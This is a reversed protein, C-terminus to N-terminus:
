YVSLPELKVGDFWVKGRGYLVLGIRLTAGAPIKIAEFTHSFHNWDTTGKVEFLEGGKDDRIGEITKNNLDFYYGSVYAAPAGIVKETKIYCSLTYTQYPTIKTPEIDQQFSQWRLEEGPAIEILASVDGLKANAKDVKIQEESGGARRWGDPVGDRNEDKEFSGNVILDDSAKAPEGSLSSRATVSVFVLLCWILIWGIKKQRSM